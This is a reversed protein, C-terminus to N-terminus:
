PVKAVAEACFEFLLRWEDEDKALATALEEKRTGTYARRWSWTAAWFKGHISNERVLASASLFVQTKAADRASHGILLGLIYKIGKGLWPKM